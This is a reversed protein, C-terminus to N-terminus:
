FARQFNRRMLDEHSDAHFSFNKEQLWLRELNYFEREEQRFIHVMVDGYDMVIWRDRGMARRAYPCFTKRKRASKAARADALARAHVATAGSAVIFCEALITMDSIDISVIDFGKKADLTERIKEVIQETEHRMKEEEKTGAAANGMAAASDPHMAQADGKLYGMTQEMAALLAGDLDTEAIKRLREVGDYTRNPEIM